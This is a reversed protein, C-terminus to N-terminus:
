VVAPLGCGRALRPLMPLGTPLPCTQLRWRRGHCLVHHQSDKLMALSPLFTTVEMGDQTKYKLVHTALLSVSLPGITQGSLSEKTTPGPVASVCAM